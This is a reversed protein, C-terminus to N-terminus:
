KYNFISIYNGTNRAASSTFMMTTSQLTPALAISWLSTMRLVMAEPAATPAKMLQTFWTDPAVGTMYWMTPCPAPPWWAPIMPLFTSPSIAYM